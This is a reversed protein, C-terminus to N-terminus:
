PSYARDPSISSSPPILSKDSRKFCLCPFRSACTNCKTKGAKRKSVLTNQMVKRRTRCQKGVHEANNQHTNQM